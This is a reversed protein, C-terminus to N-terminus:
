LQEIDLYSAGESTSGAFITNVGAGSLIRFDIEKEEATADIYQCAPHANVGQTGVNNYTKQMTGNGDAEVSDTRNFVSCCLQDSAAGAQFTVFGFIRYVSGKPLTVIGQAQGSGTSVTIGSGESNEADIQNLEVHDNTNFNSSQNGSMGVIAYKKGAGLIAALEGVPSASSGQALAELAERVREIFDKSALQQAM